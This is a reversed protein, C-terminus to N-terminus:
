NNEGYQEDYQALQNELAVRVERIASERQRLSDIYEVVEDRSTAVHYGKSSAILFNVLGYRRIVNIIKRVRASGIKHGIKQMGAIINDNTVARDQGKKTQLGKAIIPLMKSEDDNLEETYDKFGNIM